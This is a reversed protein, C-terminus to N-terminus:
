GERDDGGRVPPSLWSVELGVRDVVARLFEVDGRGFQGWATECVVLAAVRRAAVADLDELAAWVQSRARDKSGAEIAASLAGLATSWVDVSSM